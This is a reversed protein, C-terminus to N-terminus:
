WDNSTTHQYYDSNTVYLRWPDKHLHLNTTGEVLVLFPESKRDVFIKVCSLSQSFIRRDKLLMTVSVDEDGGDEDPTHVVQILLDSEAQIEYVNVEKGYQVEPKPPVALFRILDESTGQYHSFKDM